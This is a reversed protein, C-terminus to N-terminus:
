SEIAYFLLAEEQGLDEEALDNPSNPLPSLFVKMHALDQLHSGRPSVTFPCFNDVPFVHFYKLNKLPGERTWAWPGEDEFQAISLLASLLFQGNTLVQSPSSSYNGCCTQSQSQSQATQWTPNFLYTQLVPLETGGQFVLNEGEEPYVKGVGHLEGLGERLCCGLHIWPKKQWSDLKPCETCAYLM